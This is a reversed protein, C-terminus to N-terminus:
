RHSIMFPKLIYLNPKNYEMTGFAKEYAVQGNKVVVVVCGPAAQM